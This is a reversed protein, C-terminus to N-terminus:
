QGRDVHVSVGSKSRKGTGLHDAFDEISTEGQPRRGGGSLHAFLGDALPNGTGALVTELGTQLIAGACRSVLGALRRGFELVLDEGEAALAAGIGMDPENKGGEGLGGQGTDQATMTEVPKGGEFRGFRRGNAVFAIIGTIKDVEIDLLQAAKGLGADTGGAVAGVAIWTRSNLTQMDGDVVVAAKGKGAKERIFASGADEGSELLGDAEVGIMADFDLADKAESREPESRPEV